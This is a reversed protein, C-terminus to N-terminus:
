NRNQSNENEIVEKESKAGALICAYLFLSVNAGLIFSIIIGFM